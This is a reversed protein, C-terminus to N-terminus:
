RGKSTKGNSQIIAALEDLWNTFNAKARDGTPTSTYFSELTDVNRYLAYRNLPTDVFPLNVLAKLDALEELLFRDDTTRSGEFMNVVGVVELSRPATARDAKVKLAAKLFPLSAELAYNGPVFPIVLVDAYQLLRIIQQQHPPLDSDLKGPADILIIDHATDLSIIDREFDGMSKAEIPYPTRAEYGQLDALRRKILSQQPDLDLVCVSLGFPPSALANATLATLTTKGVGGKQNGFMVIKAM